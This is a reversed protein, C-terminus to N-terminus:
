SQLAKGPKNNTFAASAIFDRVAEILRWLMQLDASASREEFLEASKLVHDLLSIAGAPTTVPLGSQIIKCQTGYWTAEALRDWDQDSVGGDEAIDFSKREAEYRRLLTLLPDADDM